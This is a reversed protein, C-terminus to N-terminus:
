SPSVSALRRLARRRHTLKYRDLASEVDARTTGTAELLRRIIEGQEADWTATFRVLDAATRAPTTIAAGEVLVIEDRAIVVERVLIDLSPARAFREGPATCLQIPNPAPFQAGWVWAASGREAVLRGDAYERLSAARQAVDPVDDLPAFCTGVAVIDGDLRMATLEAISLDRLTLLSRM